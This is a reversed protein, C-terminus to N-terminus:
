YLEEFLTRELRKVYTENATISKFSVRPWTILMVFPGSREVTVVEEKYYFAVRSPLKGYFPKISDFVERALETGLACDRDSIKETKGSNSFQVVPLGQRNLVLVRIPGKGRPLARRAEELSKFSKTQRAM